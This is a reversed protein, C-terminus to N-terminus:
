LVEGNVGEQSPYTKFHNVYFIQRETNDVTKAVKKLTICTQAICDKTM